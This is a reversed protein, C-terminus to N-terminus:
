RASRPTGSSKGPFFLQGGSQNTGLLYITAANPATTWLRKSTIKVMREKAKEENRPADEQM